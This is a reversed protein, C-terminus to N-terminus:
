SKGEDIAGDCSEDFIELRVDFCQNPIRYYLLAINVSVFDLPSNTHKVVITKTPALELATQRVTNPGNEM